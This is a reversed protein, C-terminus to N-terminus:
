DEWPFYKDPNSWGIRNTLDLNTKLDFYQNMGLAGYWSQWLIISIEPIAYGYIMALNEIRSYKQSDSIISAFAELLSSTWESGVDYQNADSTSGSNDIDPYANENSRCATLVAVNSLDDLDDVFSGSHCSGLILNFKIGSYQTFKNRFQQVTFTQGGLRISNTGGHAIIFITIVKAGDQVFYDICNLVDKAGEQVLGNLIYNNTNKGYSHFVNVANLYTDVADEYCRENKTLGEVVIFGIKVESPYVVSQFEQIVRGTPKPPMRMDVIYNSPIDRYDKILHPPTKGNIVPWSYATYTAVSKDDYVLIYETEHLFYAGPNKDLFFFYAPKSLTLNFRGSKFELGELAETIVTGPGLPEDLGICAYFDEGSFQSLVEEEVIQAAEEMTLNMTPESATPACSVVFLAFCVSVVVALVFLNKM